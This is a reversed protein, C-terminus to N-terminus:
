ADVRAAAVVDIVLQGRHKDDFMGSKILLNRLTKAYKAAQQISSRRRERHFERVGDNDVKRAQEDEFDAAIAANALPKALRVVEIIQTQLKAMAEIDRKRAEEWAEYVWNAGQRELMREDAEWDDTLGLLYDTSVEYVRAAKVIAWLQISPPNSELKYLGSANTYGMRESAEALKLGCLARANALRESVLQAIAANSHTDTSKM